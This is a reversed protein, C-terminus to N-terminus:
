KKKKFWGFLGKKGSSESENEMNTKIKEDDKLDNDSERGATAASEVANTTVDPYSNDFEEIEQQSKPEPTLNNATEITSKQENKINNKNIIM